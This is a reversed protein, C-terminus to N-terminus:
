DLIGRSPPNRKISTLWAVCSLRRSLVFRCILIIIASGPLDINARGIHAAVFLGCSGGAMALGIRELIHARKRLLSRADSTSPHRIM